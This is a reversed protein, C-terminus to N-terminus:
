IGTDEDICPYDIPTWDIIDVDTFFRAIEKQASEPGDSAHILNYRNSIGFDGRITGPAAEAGFTAGVLNRTTSIAHQGELVMLAVPGSTVFKVLPEYFPKGEHEEYHTKALEDSIQILKLGVIKLGKEEFRQIIKGILRRNVGDPKVFVLTREM